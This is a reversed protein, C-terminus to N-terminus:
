DDYSLVVKDSVPTSQCTLVYGADVEDDELGYNLAMEVEGELVKARCTCCVAGKCAYPVDNGSALAADLINPQDGTFEFGSRVGNVIIQIHAGDKEKGDMSPSAREAPTNEPGSIFREIHMHAENYGANHLAKEVSDMMPGPGCIFIEHMTDLDVFGDFFAACKEVTLLGNFIAMDQHDDELVHFIRLRDLYRNKLGSLEESFIISAADRNGYILTFHSDPESFLTTKILSLIPTIGSGGSFALYNKKHKADLETYFHGAPPFAELRDGVKLENNMYGSFRGDKIAKVAIRLAYDQVGACISYCRRLEEGAISHKLTIHQGQKYEFAKKDGDTIKFLVSVADKTERIIEAVELTHFSKM